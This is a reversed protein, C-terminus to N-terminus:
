LVESPSGRVRILHLLSFSNTIPNQRNLIIKSFFQLYFKLIIYFFVEQIWNVVLFCCGFLQGRASALISLLTPLRTFFSAHKLNSTLKIPFHRNFEGIWLINQFFRRGKVLGLCVAPILFPIMPSLLISVLITSDAILYFM